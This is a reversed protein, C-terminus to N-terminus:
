HSLSSIELHSISILQNCWMNDTPEWLSRNKAGSELIKDIVQSSFDAGSFKASLVADAPAALLLFTLDCVWFMTSPLCGYFLSM